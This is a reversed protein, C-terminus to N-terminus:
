GDPSNQMSTFSMSCTELNTLSKWEGRRVLDRDGDMDRLIEGATATAEAWAAHKDSLEEGDSFVQHYGDFINFFYRPM